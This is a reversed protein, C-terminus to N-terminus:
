PSDDEVSAPKKKEKTTWNMAAKLTRQLKSSKLLKM